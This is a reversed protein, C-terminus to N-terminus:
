VPEVDVTALDKDPYLRFVFIGGFSLLKVSFQGVPLNFGGSVIAERVSVSIVRGWWVVDYAGECLVSAPVGSLKRLDDTASYEGM